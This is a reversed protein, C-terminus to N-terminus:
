DRFNFKSISHTSSYRWKGICRWPTTSLKVKVKIKEKTMIQILSPYQLSIISFWLSIFVLRINLILSQQFYKMNETTISHHSGSKCFVSLLKRHLLLEWCKSVPTPSDPVGNHTSNRSWWKVARKIVVLLTQNSACGRCRSFWLDKKHQWTTVTYQFYQVAFVEPGHLIGRWRESLTCVCVCVCV